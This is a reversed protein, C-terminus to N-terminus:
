TATGKMEIAELGEYRVAIEGQETTINGEGAYSATRLIITKGNALDLTVTGDRLSLLSAVDLDSSDTIMGEIFPVQVASSFGHVRDAGVIATLKPKGLNYTFVGKADQQAGNVKFTITGARM